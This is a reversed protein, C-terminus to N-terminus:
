FFFLFSSSVFFILRYIKFVPCKYWVQGNEDSFMGKKFQIQVSTTTQAIIEPVEKKAPKPPAIFDFVNFYGFIKRPPITIICCLLLLLLFCSKDIM